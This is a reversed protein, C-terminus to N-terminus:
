EIYEPYLVKVKEIANSLHFIHSNLLSLMKKRDKREMYEVLKVHENYMEHIVEEDEIYILRERQHKEYINCVISVASHNGAVELFLMHLKNDFFLNQHLDGTKISEHQKELIEKAKKIDQPTVLDIAIDMLKEEIVARVFADDRMNKVSIKSVYSSVQPVITVLGESFLRIIGERIPTRSVELVDIIHAENICEGPKMFLNIINYRLTDYVYERLNKFNRKELIRINDM